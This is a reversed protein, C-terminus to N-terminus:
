DTDLICREKKAKQLYGIKQPKKANRLDRRGGCSFCQTVFRSKFHESSRNRWISELYTCLIVCIQIQVFIEYKIAYKYGPQKVSISLLKISFFSAENMKSLEFFFVNSMRYFFYIVHSGQSSVKAALNLRNQNIITSFM